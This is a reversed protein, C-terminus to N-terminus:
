REGFCFTAAAFRKRALATLDLCCALHSTSVMSFLLVFASLPLESTFGWVQLGRGGFNVFVFFGSTVFGKSNTVEPTATQVVAGIGMWRVYDIVKMM